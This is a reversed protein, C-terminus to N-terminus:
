NPFEPGAMIREHDCGVSPRSWSAICAVSYPRLANFLSRDLGGIRGAESPM